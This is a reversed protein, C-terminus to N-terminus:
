IDRSVRKRRTKIFRKHPLKLQFYESVKDFVRFYNTNGILYREKTIPITRPTTAESSNLIYLNKYKTM